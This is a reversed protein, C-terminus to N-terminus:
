LSRNARVPAWSRFHATRFTVELAERLSSRARDRLDLNSATM